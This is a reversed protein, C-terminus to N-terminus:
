VAHVKNKKPTCFSCICCTLYLYYEFWNTSAGNWLYTEAQCDTVLNAIILVGMVLLSFSVMKSKSLLSKITRRFDNLVIEVGM